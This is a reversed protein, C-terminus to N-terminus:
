FVSFGCHKEMINEEKTKKIKYYSPSPVGEDGVSLLTIRKDPALAGGRWTITETVDASL